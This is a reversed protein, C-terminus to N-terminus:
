LGNEANNGLPFHFFHIKEVHPLVDCHVSHEIKSSKKIIVVPYFRNEPLM